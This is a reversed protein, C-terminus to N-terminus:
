REKKKQLVDMMQELCEAVIAKKNAQQGNAQGGQSSPSNSGGGGENVNVKIVLEKIEVPM